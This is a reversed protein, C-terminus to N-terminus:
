STAPKDRQRPPSSTTPFGAPSSSQDYVAGCAGLRGNDGRTLPVRASARFPPLFALSRLRWTLGCLDDAMLSSALPPSTMSRFTPPLPTCFFTPFPENKGVRSKVDQKGADAKVGGEPTTLADFAARLTM